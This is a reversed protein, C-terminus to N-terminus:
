IGFDTAVRVVNGFSRAYRNSGQFEPANDIRLHDPLGLWHWGAMPFNVIGQAEQSDQINNACRHDSMCRLNSCMVLM